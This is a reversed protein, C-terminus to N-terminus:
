QRDVAIAGGGAVVDRQVAQADLRDDAADREGCVVVGAVRETDDARGAVVGDRERGVRCCGACQSTVAAVRHDGIGAQGACQGDGTSRGPLVDQRDDTGGAGVGDCRRTGRRHGQGSGHCDSRADVEQLDQGSGSVVRDRDTVRDRGGLANIGSLAVVRDVERCGSGGVWCKDTAQTVVVDDATGADIQDKGSSAVVGNITTGAVVRDMAVSAVVIKGASGTRVHHETTISGVGDVPCGAVADVGDFTFGAAVHEGDGVRARDGHIKGAGPWLDATDVGGPEFQDVDVAAAQGVGDTDGPCGAVILDRDHGGSGADFDSAQGDVQGDGPALGQFQVAALSIVVQVHGAVRHRDGCVRRDDRPGRRGVDGVLVEFGGRHEGVRADFQRNTSRGIVGNHRVCCCVLSRDEGVRQGNFVVTESGAGRDADIAVQFESGTIGVVVHCDCGSSGHRHGSSGADGRRRGPIGQHQDGPVAVVGERDSGSVGPVRDVCLTAVGGGRVHGVQGTVSGGNFGAEAVGGADGTTAQARDVQWSDLRDVDVGCGAVHRGIARGVVVHDGVGRRTDIRATDGCTAEVGAEVQATDVAQCDISDATVVGQRDQSCGCVVGERDTVRSDQVIRELSDIRDAIDACQCNGTSFSGVRKVDSRARQWDEDVAVIRDPARGAVREVDVAATRDDRGVNPRLVVLATEDRGASFGDAVVVDFRDPDGPRSGTRGDDVSGIAVIVDRHNAGSHVIESDADIGRSRHM